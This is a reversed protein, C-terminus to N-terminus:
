RGPRPKFEARCLLRTVLEPVFILVVCVFLQRQAMFAVFLKLVYCFFFLNEVLSVRNLLTCSVSMKQSFFFLAKLIFVFYNFVIVNHGPALFM